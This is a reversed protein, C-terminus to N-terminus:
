CPPKDIGDGAELTCVVGAPIREAENMKRVSKIKFTKPDGNKVQLM